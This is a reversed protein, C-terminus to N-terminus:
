PQAKYTIKKNKPEDDKKYNETPCVVDQYCCDEYSGITYSVIEPRILFIVNQINTPCNKARDSFNNGGLHPDPLIGQWGKKIYRQPKGKGPAKCCNEDYPNGQSKRSLLFRQM